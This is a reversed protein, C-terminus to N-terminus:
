STTSKGGMPSLPLALAFTAGKGVGDSHARIDGGLQKVALTASHLGFGHGDKKTTFGHQFLRSFNEPPIGVGNDKVAFRIFGGSNAVQLVLKRDTREAAQCAHKANRIFNVLIQLVMHKGVIIEPLNDDYERVVQIAHRALSAAVIRLSDEMLDVPRVRETTGGMISANQQTTVVEKMHRLYEEFHRLEALVSVREAEFFEALKELYDPLLKGKPDETIFAGIDNAHERFLSAVRTLSATKSNRLQDAIVSASTNVSNVINKVNHLVGNAVEAVGAERSARILEVNIRELEMEAQKNESIDEVTGIRGTIRGTESQLAATRARVWRIQNEPGVFRFERDLDMGERECEKVATMTGPLDHPHINAMWDNGAGPGNSIGSIKRCRLNEYLLRGVTDTLFIGIPASECLTRFRQDSAQLEEHAALLELTTDPSAEKPRAVKLIEVYVLTQNLLQFAIEGFTVPGVLGSTRRGELKSHLYNLICNCSFVVHETSLEQHSAEFAAVYDALPSALKYEVGSVVPAYFEVRGNQSDLSKFSVNVPAGCYNAMLPLRVDAQNQQLYDAFNREKGNILATTASFGSSPFCITDGDGAQFLNVIRIQAMRDSPLKMRMVVADDALPEPGGCFVKPALKGLMALDVGAIWGALPHLAFGAYTPAHLAFETHAASDAPLIVFSVTNEAADQYIGPLKSVTYRHISIDFGAPLEIVFIKDQCLCGGEPAMFYPITGGIWNGSPLSALLGEEGALMLCQGAKIRRATEKPDLLRNVRPEERNAVKNFDEEAMPLRSFKGYFVKLEDICEPLSTEGANLRNRLNILLLQLPLFKFQVERTGDIVSSWVKEGILNISVSRHELGGRTRPLM